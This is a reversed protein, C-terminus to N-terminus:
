TDREPNRAERRPKVREGEKEIRGTDREWKHRDPSGHREQKDKTGSWFPPGLM